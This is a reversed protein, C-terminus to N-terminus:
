KEENQEKSLEAQKRERIIEEYLDITMNQKVLEDENETQTLKNIIELYLKDAKENWNRVVKKAEEVVSMRLEIKIIDKDDEAVKCVVLEKSPIYEASIAVEQRISKYYKSFDSDVKLKSIGPIMNLAIELSDIGLDTIEYLVILEDKSVQASRKEDVTQIGKNYEYKIDAKEKNEKNRETKHIYGEMVLEELTEHFVFYNIETLSTVLELYVKYTIAKKTKKLIYLMLIKTQAVALAESTYQM